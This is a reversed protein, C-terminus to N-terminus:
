PAAVQKLSRFVQAVRDLCVLRIRQNTTWSIPIVACLSEAMQIALLGIPFRPATTFRRRMGANMKADKRADAAFLVQTREDFANMAVMLKEASTNEHM